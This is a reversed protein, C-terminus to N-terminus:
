RGLVRVQKPRDGSRFTLTELQGSVRLNMSNIQQSAYDQLATFRISWDATETPWAAEQYVWLFGREIESGLLNLAVPEGTSLDIVQLTQAAYTAFQDRAELDTTLDVRKGMVDALAHEADHLSFRHAWEIQGTRPNPTVESIASHIRHADASGSILIAFGAAILFQRRRM